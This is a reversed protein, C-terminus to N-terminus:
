AKEETRVIAQLLEDPEELLIRQSEPLKDMRIQDSVSTMSYIQLARRIVWFQRESMNDISYSPSRQTKIVKLM